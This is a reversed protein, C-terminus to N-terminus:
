LNLLLLLLLLFCVFCKDAAIIQTATKGFKDKISIDAGGQLLCFVVDPTGYQVADHLPTRGVDSDRVNPNAGKELLLKAIDANTWDM